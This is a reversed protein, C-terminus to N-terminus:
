LNSLDDQRLYPYHGFSRQLVGHIHEPTPYSGFARSVQGLSTEYQQLVQAEDSQAHGNAAQQLFRMKIRLRGLWPRNAARERRAEELINRRQQEIPSVAEVQNSAPLAVNVLADSPTLKKAEDHTGLMGVLLGVLAARSTSSRMFPVRSGSSDASTHLPM